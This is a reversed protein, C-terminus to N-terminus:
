LEVCCYRSSRYKVARSALAISGLFLNGHVPHGMLESLSSLGRASQGAQVIKCLGTHNVNRNRPALLLAGLRSVLVEFM